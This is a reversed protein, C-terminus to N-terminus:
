RASELIQEQLMEVMSLSNAAQARFSMLQDVELPNVGPRSKIEEALCFRCVASGRSGKGCIPCLEMTTVGVPYQYMLLTLLTDTAYESLKKKSDIM